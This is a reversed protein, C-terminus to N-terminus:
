LIQEIDLLIPFLLTRLPSFVSAQLIHACVFKGLNIRKREECVKREIYAELTAEQDKSSLVKANRRFEKTLMQARTHLNM